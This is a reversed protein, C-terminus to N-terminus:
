DSDVFRSRMGPPPVFCHEVRGFWRYRNRAVLSYIRDRLPRPVVRLVILWRWPLRLHRLLALGADSRTLARGQDAVLYTQQLAAEDLGHQAAIALGEASWASVFRIEQDREHALIFHVWRSCLVCDTDFVIVTGRNM